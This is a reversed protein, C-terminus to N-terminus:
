LCFDGRGAGEAGGVLLVLLLLLREGVLLEGVPEGVLSTGEAVLEGLFFLCFRVYPPQVNSLMNVSEYLLCALSAFLQHHHHQQLEELM